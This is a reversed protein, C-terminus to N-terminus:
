WTPLRIHNLLIYFRCGTVLSVSQKNLCYIFRLLKKISGFCNKNKPQVRFYFSNKIKNNRHEAGNKCQPAM